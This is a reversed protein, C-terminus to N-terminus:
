LDEPETYIFIQEVTDDASEDTHGLIYILGEATSVGLLIWGKKLLQNVTSTTNPPMNSLTGGISIVKKITHLLFTSSQITNDPTM